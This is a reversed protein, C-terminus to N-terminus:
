LRKRMVKVTSIFEEYEIGHICCYSVRVGQNYALCVDHGGTMCDYCMDRSSSKVTQTRVQNLLGRIVMAFDKYHPFDHTLYEWDAGECLVLCDSLIWVRVPVDCAGIIVVRMDPHKSVILPFIDSFFWHLAQKNTPNAGNGVFSLHARISGDLTGGSEGRLRLGTESLIEVPSLAYRVVQFKSADLAM